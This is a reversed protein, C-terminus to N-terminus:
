RLKRFLIVTPRLLRYVLSEALRKRFWEISVTRRFMERLESDSLHSACHWRVLSKQLRVAQTDLGNWIGRQSFRVVTTKDHIFEISRFRSASICILWDGAKVGRSSAIFDIDIEERLMLATSQKVHNGKILQVGSKFKSSKLIEQEPRLQLETEASNEDRFYFDTHIIGIEPNSELISVQKAIKLPDIWYDDGDCWGIFKTSISRYHQIGVYLGQSLENQPLAEIKIQKPYRSRYEECKKLTDDTSCDDIILIQIRPYCSQAIIGELCESIFHMQNYTHVIITVNAREDLNMISKDPPM